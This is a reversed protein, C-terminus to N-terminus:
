LLKNVATFAAIQGILLPILWRLLSHHFAHMESRLKEIAENLDAKVAFLDTKTVLLDRVADALIEVQAEAQAESFGAARLKKAYLLTDIAVSMM